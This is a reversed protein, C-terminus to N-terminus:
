EALSLERLIAAADECRLRQLLQVHGNEEAIIAELNGLVAQDIIFDKIMTFFLITDKEFEIAYELLGQLSDVSSLDLEELTFGRDGIFDQLQAGWQNQPLPGPGSNSNSHKLHTFFAAHRVEQEALWLLMRKFDVNDTRELFRRYFREGNQEIRIALDFIEAITFM